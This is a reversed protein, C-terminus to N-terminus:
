FPQISSSAMREAVILAITAVSAAGEADIGEWDDTPRHYDAHFGTFFAVAPVQRRLFSANDSAGVGYGNAFDDIRLGVLPGLAQVLAGIDPRGELGGVMVRGNPRGIMDLNIMGATRAIPVAPEAVYRSSGLLGIEEGAFAAFVVSRGFREPAAAAARAMEILAATGSANDDAGNHIEGAARPEMSSRGGLGLHDYHAGIVVAEERLAPDHGPLRAVVNRVRPWARARADVYTVFAGPVPRSQPELTTDIQRALATLDLSLAAELRLRDVRLVTLGFDDIQPDTVWAPTRARDTAHVPDEVVLMMRAGRERAVQAKRGLSAHPTLADGDFPSDAEDEQPEHTLVVVATGTVDLGAYDDYGAAPASIGYGAFVLPVRGPAAPPQERSRRPLSLPYYATGLSLRSEGTPGRIVLPSRPATGPHTTIEFSQFWTGADGAPELGAREFATAIYAAAQELGPTGNGRGALEDSALHRVHALYRVPDIRLAALSDAPEPPSSLAGACVAAVGTAAARLWLARTHM